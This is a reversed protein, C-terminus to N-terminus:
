AQAKLFALEDPTLSAMGSRSIKDLLSDINMQPGQDAPKSIGLQSYMGEDDPAEFGEPGEGEEEGSEWDRM